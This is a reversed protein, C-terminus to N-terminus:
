SESANDVSTPGDVGVIVDIDNMLPLITTRAYIAPLPPPPEVM